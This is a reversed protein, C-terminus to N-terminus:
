GYFLGRGIVILATAIIVLVFYIGNLADYIDNINKDKNKM